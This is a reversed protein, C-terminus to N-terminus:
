NSANCQPMSNSRQKGRVIEYIIIVLVPVVSKHKHSLLHLM